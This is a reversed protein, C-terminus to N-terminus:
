GGGGKSRFLAGNTAIGAVPVGNKMRLRLRPLGLPSGSLTARPQVDTRLGVRVGPIPPVARRARMRQAGAAGAVILLVAALLIWLKSRGAGDDAAPPPPPAAPGAPQRSGAVPPVVPPVVAVAPTAPAVLALQVPTGVPVRAGAAPTQTAVTWAASDALAPDFAAALGAGELAVRAAPLDLTRVDPVAGSDVRAVATRPTDPPAAVRPTDPRTVPPTQPRTVPPPTPRPPVRPPQPRTAPPPEPRTVVPPSAPRAAIRLTDRRPGPRPPDPRTAVPPAPPAGFELDVVSNAPVREGVKFTHGIVRNSQGIRLGRMAGQRLGAIRLVLIAREPPLGMVEPMVTMRQTRPVALWLPVSSGPTVTTGAAPRQRVITGPEADSEVEQVTGVDLKQRALLARAEEVSRGVLDPVVSTSGSNPAPVSTQARLVGPAACLLALLLVAPHFIRIPTPL